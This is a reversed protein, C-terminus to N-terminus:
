YPHLLNSGVILLRTSMYLTGHRVAAFPEKCTCPGNVMSWEMGWLRLTKAGKAWALSQVQDLM